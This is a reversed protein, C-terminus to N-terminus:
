RALMQGPLIAQTVRENGMEPFIFVAHRGIRRGFRRHLNTATM